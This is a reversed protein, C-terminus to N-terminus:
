AALYKELWAIGQKESQDMAKKDKESSWDSRLAFGHVQDEYVVVETDKKKELIDKIQQVQDNSLLSDQDGVALALPKAVPDFDGPVAVLSPHAAFAADAGVEHAALIAYRGGWCFGVVGIKNTGPEYRLTNLFGDILPKTVAERHKILWPGLTAGVKATKIGKDVLTLQERVKLPPEADQLFEIPLSDNSHFDPVYVFFRDM